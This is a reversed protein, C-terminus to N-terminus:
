SAIQYGMHSNFDSSGVDQVLRNVGAQGFTQSFIRWIGDGATSFWGVDAGNDGGRGM